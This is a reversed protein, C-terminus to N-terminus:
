ILIKHLKNLLILLAVVSARVPSSFPSSGSFVLRFGVAFLVVYEYVHVHLMVALSHFARIFAICPFPVCRTSHPGRARTHSGSISSAHGLPALAHIHHTRVATIPITRAPHRTRFSLPTLCGLEVVSDAVLCLLPGVFGAPLGLRAFGSSAGRLFFLLSFALRRARFLFHLLRRGAGLPHSVHVLASTATRGIRAFFLLTHAHFRCRRSARRFSRPLSSGSEGEVPYLM